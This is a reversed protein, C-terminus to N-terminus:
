NSCFLFVSLVIEIFVNWTQPWCDFSLFLLMTIVKGCVCESERTEICNFFFDGTLQNPEVMMCNGFVFALVDYMLTHRLRRKKRYRPMAHFTHRKIKKQWSNSNNNIVNRPTDNLYTVNWRDCISRDNTGLIVPAVSSFHEFFLQIGLFLWRM